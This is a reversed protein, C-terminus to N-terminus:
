RKVIEKSLNVWRQSEIVTYESDQNEHIALFAEIGNGFEQKFKLAIVAHELCCTDKENAPKDCNIAVCKM